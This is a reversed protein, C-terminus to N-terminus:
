CARGGFYCLCVLSQAARVIASRKPRASARSIRYRTLGKKEAELGSGNTPGDEIGRAGFAVSSAHNETM